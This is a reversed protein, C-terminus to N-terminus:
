ETAQMPTTIVTFLTIHFLLIKKSNVIM